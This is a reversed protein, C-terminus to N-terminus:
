ALSNNASFGDTPVDMSVRRQHGPRTCAAKTVSRTVSVRLLPRHHEAQPRPCRSSARPISLGAETATSVGLHKTAIEIPVGHKIQEVDDFTERANQQVFHLSNGVYRWANAFPPLTNM